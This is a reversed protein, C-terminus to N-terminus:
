ERDVVKISEIPINNLYYYGSLYNPDKYLKTINAVKTNIEYIIWKTNKNYFKKNNKGSYLISDKEKSYFIKMPNILVKCDEISKCLYIRGDYDHSSLKSKGKPILGYKLTQKEYQQISLHYLSEPINDEIKDFKSEFTIIVDSINNSPNLLYDKEFNFKSKAGFFNTVKLSSPFWGYLNFCKDLLYEIIEKLYPIKNFEDIFIEFTNNNIKNIKYNLNYSSITRDIDEITKDIDYTKILGEEIKGIFSEFTYIHEMIKDTM